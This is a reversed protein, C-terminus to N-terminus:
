YVRLISAMDIAKDLKYKSNNCTALDDAYGVLRSPTMYVKCCLESSKLKLILSNIFVTYKLLSLYGGQHIGAGSPTGNRPGDRFM